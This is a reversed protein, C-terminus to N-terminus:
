RSGARLLAEALSVLKRGDPVGSRVLELVSLPGTHHFTTLIIAQTGAAEALRVSETYPISPDARGHAILARGRLRSMVSLPSLRDLATHTDSSLGALLGSVADARRNHVLALVARGESRLEAERRSTDDLPNALRIRAIADLRARDSADGVLGALLQLVKWRNYPEAGANTTVYAVVTRLDAYGGFSGALRIGPREAAALLAPGAGFSFGAVAVPQAVGAAYDLAAVIAAVERGDLTFAALSDFQPVLALPGQRALLRALRALDPQRRGAASLGHVLLITGRPRASRYLDAAVMRGAFPIQVEERVIDAGPLWSEAAPLALALSLTLARGYALWLVGILTALVFLALGIRLSATSRLAPSPTL